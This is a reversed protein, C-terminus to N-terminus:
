GRDAPPPADTLLVAVTAAAFALVGFTAAIGLNAAGLALAVGTVLAFVALPLVLRVALTM